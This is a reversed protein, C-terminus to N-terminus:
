MNVTAGDRAIDDLRDCLIKTYFVVVQEMTDRMMQSSFLHSATKRQHVWLTGDVGFVGNGLIDELVKSIFAGKGFDDFKTKLVDEFGEPSGLVVMVPKGLIKMRWPKGSHKRNEDLLMDYFRGRYAVMVDLTNHLIPLTTTPTPLHSVAREQASPLLLYSLLAACCAIAVNSPTTLLAAITDIDLM